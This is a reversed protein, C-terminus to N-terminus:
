GALFPRPGAAPALSFGAPTPQEACDDLPDPVFNLQTVRLADASMGADLGPPADSPRAARDDDPLAARRGFVAPARAKRGDELSGALASVPRRAGDPWCAAVALALAAAALAAALAVFQAPADRSFPRIALQLASQVASIALQSAVLASLFYRFGRADLMVAVQAVSVTRAFEFIAQAAAFALYACPLPLAWSACFAHSGLLALLLAAVGSTGAGVAATWRRVAREVPGHAAVLSALSAAIYSTGLVVGNWEAARAGASASDLAAFLAQYYTLVLQQAATLSVHWALLVLLRDVRAGGTRAPPLLVACLAALAAHAATLGRPLPARGRWAVSLGCRGLRAHRAGLLLEHGGSRCSTLALPLAPSHAVSPPERARWPSSPTPIADSRTCRCACCPSCGTGRRTAPLALSALMGALHCWFTARVLADLPAGRSVLLQGVLASSASGILVCARVLAIARQYDRADFVEFLLAPLVSTKTVFFFSFCVQDLQMMGVDDARVRLVIAAACARAAAGLVVTRKHGIVHSCVLAVPLCFFLAYTWVPFVSGILQAADFQKASTLFEFLYAESPSFFSLLPFICLALGHARRLRSPSRPAAPAAASAADAPEM